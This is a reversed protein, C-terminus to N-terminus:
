LLVNKLDYLYVYMQIEHLLVNNIFKWEGEQVIFTMEKKSGDNHLSQTLYRKKQSIKESLNRSIFIFQRSLSFICIWDMILYSSLIEENIMMLILIM